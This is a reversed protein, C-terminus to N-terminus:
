YIAFVILVVDCAWNFLVLSYVEDFNIHSFVFENLVEAEM